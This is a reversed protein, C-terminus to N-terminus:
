KEKKEKEKGGSKKGFLSLKGKKGFLKGGERGSAEDAPSSQTNPVQPLSFSFACYEGEMSAVSIEGGLAGLITKVIYLGLGVGSKDLSRSKDSKYFREFLRPLEEQPIGAGTNKVTTVVVGGRQQFNFEISGGENVFKVANEVLNYVVQHVLDSDGWVMTRDADLGLIELKKEEIRPEFLFLTRFVIDTLDVPQPTFSTEGAEIRSISLMSRVLRSLRKTEDSVIQLYYPQKEEPITGDLIGDVFGSISTMPTKLEHSVNAVFSRRSSESVSLYSAMSNLSVALQGIEDDSEVPVRQTFDGHAFRDTVGAMQRLPRVMRTTVFGILLMAALISFLASFGYIKLIDLLFTNLSDASASVFVSGVVKGAPDLLPQGVTFFQQRYTGDLNSLEQYEGTAVKRLVKQSIHHGAHICNEGESCLLVAGDNNVLFIKSDLTAGLVEYVQTLTESNVFLYNNSRYNTMTVGVAQDVNNSLLDFKDEKFYNGAFVLLVVCLFTLSLFLVLATYRYYKTFLSQNPKKQTESM